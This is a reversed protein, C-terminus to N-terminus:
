ARAAGALHDARGLLAEVEPVGVAIASALRGDADLLIACPTGPSGYARGVEGGEDLLMPSRFRQAENAERSGTAVFVIQASADTQDTERRLLSPVFAQCHPCTPKWFILVTIRGGFETLDVDGGRVAPLKFPPAPDGPLLRVPDVPPPPSMVRDPPASMLRSAWAEVLRRIEVAGLAVRSAIRRNPDVIVAAPTALAQYADAVESGGPVLLNHIEFDQVKQRNQELSGRSIVAISLCAAYRSQWGDIEPLLATCHRCDHASFILLAHRGDILLSALSARSGDLRPLDFAPALTGAPWGLSEATRPDAHPAVPVPAVPTVAVSGRREWVLLGLVMQAMVLIALATSVGAADIAHSLATVLDSPSGSAGGTVVIGALAVFVVDRALTWNSIPEATAEGFCACTPKKGQWLNWAILVAFVAFLGLAALAGVWATPGFALLVAVLIEIEALWRGLWRALRPSVGLDEAAAVTDTSLKSLGSYALIALVILRAVSIM